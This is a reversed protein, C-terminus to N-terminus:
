TSFDSPMGPTESGWPKVAANAGIAMSTLQIMSLIGPTRSMLRSTSDMCFFNPTKPSGRMTPVTIPMTM